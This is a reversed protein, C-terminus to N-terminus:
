EVDSGNVEQYSGNQYIVDCGRCLWDTLEEYNGNKPAVITEVHGDAFAVHGFVERGNEHNFGISENGGKSKYLLCSDMAPDGADGTLKVEPLSSADTKVAKSLELAPIEALLLIRDARATMFTNNYNQRPAAAGPTPEYGFYPNMQYSWGPNNVGKKKCLRVFAPCLYTEHDCGVAKWIAGNTLAHLKDEETGAFSPQAFSGPSSIPYHTGRDLYSIWGKYAYYKIGGDSVSTSLDAYQYSQAAASCSRIATALRRMNSACKATRARETGSGMTVLLVSTLTGIIGIVVLLEILTFARRFSRQLAPAPEPRVLFSFHSIISANNM